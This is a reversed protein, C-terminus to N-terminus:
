NDLVVPPPAPRIDPNGTAKRDGANAERTMRKGSRLQAKRVTPKGAVFGEHGSGLPTAVNQVCSIRGPHTGERGRPRRHEGSRVGHGALAQRKEAALGQVGSNWGM